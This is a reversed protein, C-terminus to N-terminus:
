IKNFLKLWLANQAHLRNEAQQLVYSYPADMVDSSIEVDRHAPQCHLVATAQTQEVLTKNIQFPALRQHVEDKNATSGM